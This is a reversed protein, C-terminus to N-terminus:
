PTTPPLYFARGTFTLAHGQFVEPVGPQRVVLSPPTTSLFCGWLHRHELGPVWPVRGRMLYFPSCLHSSTVSRLVPLRRQLIRTPRVDDCLDEYPIPPPAPSLDLFAVPGCFCPPQFPSHQQSQLCLVPGLTRPGESSLHCSVPNGRAGPLFAAEAM